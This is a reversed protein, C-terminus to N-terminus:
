SVLTWRKRGDSISMNGGVVNCFLTFVFSISNWIFSDKKLVFVHNLVFRSQDRSRCNLASDDARMSKARRTCLLYLDVCYIYRAHATSKSRGARFIFLIFFRPTYSLGRVFLVLFFLFSYPPFSRRERINLMLRTIKAANIQRSEPRRKCNSCGRARARMSAASWCCRPTFHWAALALAMAKTFKRYYSEDAEKVEM